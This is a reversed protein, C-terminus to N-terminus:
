FLFGLFTYRAEVLYIAKVVIFLLPKTCKLWVPEPDSQGEWLIIM